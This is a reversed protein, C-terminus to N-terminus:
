VGLPMRKPSFSPSTIFVDTAQFNDVSASTVPSSLVIGPIGSAVSSNDTLVQISTGNHFIEIRTSAAPGTVDVRMTDGDTWARTFQILSTFAGTIFRGVQVNNSAAHDFVVRYGTVAALAHRVWFGIGAGAGGTSVVSLTARVSQDNGWSAGTYIAGCDAAVSSPVAVNGSLNFASESTTTAWNGAMPTENARNFDDAVTTV